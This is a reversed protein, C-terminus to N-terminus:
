NEDPTGSLTKITAAYADREVSDEIGTRPMSLLDMLLGVDDLNGLNRLLEAARIRVNQSRHALEARLREAAHERRSPIAFMQEIRETLNGHPERICHERWALIAYDLATRNECLLFVDLTEQTFGDSSLQEYIWAIVDEPLTSSISLVSRIDQGWKIAERFEIGAKRTRSEESDFLSLKTPTMDRGSFQVGDSPAKADSQPDIAKIRQLISAMRGRSEAETKVGAFKGKELHHHVVVARHNFLVENGLPFRALKKADESGEYRKLLYDLVRAQVSVYTKGIPAPMNNLRQRRMQWDEYLTRPAIVATM